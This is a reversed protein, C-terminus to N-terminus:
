IRFRERWANERAEDDHVKFLDGQRVIEQLERDTLRGESQFEAKATMGSLRERATVKLLGSVDLSFTADIDVTGKRRAPITLTLHGLLHNDVWNARVGQCVKFEAEEQNDRTTTFTKTVSAPLAMGRPIIVAMIGSPDAVGLSLSAVDKLQVDKAGKDGALKAAWIAAGQAVAEDPNLSKVADKAFFDRVMQQVKLIRTSGGVLVVDDIDEKAVRAQRLVDPLMGIAKKFEPLCLEEFKSRSVSKRYGKGVRNLFFVVDTQHQTSLKRKALECAQRLEHLSEPDDRMNVKMTTKIDKMIFELLINDFDQGGLHTDGGYALIQFDDGKRMRVVALDFTGGGLDFILILGEKEKGYGYAIAAAAPETLLDIVELGALEGARKTAQRQTESFYAPVTVVAKSVKAELCNNEATLKMTELVKGSVVEPAMLVPLGNREIEYKPMGGDNRVTFTWNVFDQEADVEEYRRGILRKSDYLTNMSAIDKAAQGVTCDVDTFSVCSPTTRKGTDFDSVIEPKRGRYVGVVSYTTGLDIGLAM